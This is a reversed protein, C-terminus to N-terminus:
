QDQSSKDSQDSQDGSATDSNSQGMNHDTEVTLQKKSAPATSKTGSKNPAQEVAGGKADTAGAPKQPKTVQSVKGKLAEKQKALSKEAEM